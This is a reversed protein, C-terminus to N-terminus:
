LTGTCTITCSVKVEYTKLMSWIGLEQTKVEAEVSDVSVLTHLTASDLPSGITPPAEPHHPSMPTKTLLFDLPLLKLYEIFSPELSMACGAMELQVM